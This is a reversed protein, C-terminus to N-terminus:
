DKEIEKLLALAETIKNDSNSGTNEAETLANHVQKRSRHAEATQRVLWILSEKSLVSSLLRINWLSETLNWQLVEVQQEHPLLSIVCDGSFSEKMCAKYVDNKIWHGNETQQILWLLDEESLLHIKELTDKQNWQFVEQRQKLSITSICAKGKSPMMARHVDNTDWEGNRTQQLLVSINEQSILHVIEVGAELATDQSLPYQFNSFHFTFHFDPENM